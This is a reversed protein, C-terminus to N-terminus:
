TTNVKVLGKLLWLCCVAVGLKLVYSNTYRMSGSSMINGVAAFSNIRDAPTREAKQLDM